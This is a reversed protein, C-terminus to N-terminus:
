ANYNIQRFIIIVGVFMIGMISLSIIASTRYTINKFLELKNIIYKVIGCYYFLYFFTFVIFFVKNPYKDTINDIKPLKKEYEEEM